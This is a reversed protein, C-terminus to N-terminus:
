VHGTSPPLTVRPRFLNWLFAVAAILGSWGASIAAARLTTVDPVGGVADGATAMGIFTGTAAYGFVRGMSVLAQTIREKTRASM